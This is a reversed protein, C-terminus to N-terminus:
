EIVSLAANYILIDQTIGEQGILFIKMEKLRAENIVFSRKEANAKIRHFNIGDDKMVRDLHEDLLAVITSGTAISKLKLRKMESDTLYSVRTIKKAMKKIIEGGEATPKKIKLM